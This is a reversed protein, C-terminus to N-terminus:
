LLLGYKSGKRAFQLNWISLKFIRTSLAFYFSSHLTGTDLYQYKQNVISRCRSTCTLLFPAHSFVDWQGSTTPSSKRLPVFTISNMVITFSVSYEFLVCFRGLARQKRQPFSRCYRMTAHCERPSTIRFERFNPENKVSSHRKECCVLHLSAFSVSHLQIRARARAAPSSRWFAPTIARSAVRFTLNSRVRPPHLIQERPRRAAPM